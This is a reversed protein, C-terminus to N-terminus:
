SCPSFEDEELSMSAEEYSPFSEEVRGGFQPNRIEFTGDELAAIVLLYIEPKDAYSYWVEFWKMRGESEHITIM